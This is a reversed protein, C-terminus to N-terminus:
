TYFDRAAYEYRPLRHRILAPYFEPMEGGKHRLRTRIQGYAKYTKKM